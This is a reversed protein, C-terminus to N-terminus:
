TSIMRGRLVERQGRTNLPGPRQGSPFTTPHPSSTCPPAPPPDAGCPLCRLVLVLVLIASATWGRRWRKAVAATLVVNGLGYIHCLASYIALSDWSGPCRPSFLCHENSSHSQEGRQPPQGTCPQRSPLDTMRPMLARGIPGRVAVVPHWWRCATCRSSQKRCHVPPVLNVHDTLNESNEPIMVSGPAGLLRLFPGAKWSIVRLRGKSSADELPMFAAEAQHTIV